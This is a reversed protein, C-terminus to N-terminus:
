EKAMPIPVLAVSFDANAIPFLDVAEPAKEVAVPNSVCAFPM